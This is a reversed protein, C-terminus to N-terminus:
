RWNDRIYSKRPRESQHSLIVKIEALEVSNKHVENHIKENIEQHKEYLLNHNMLINEANANVKNKISDILEHTHEETQKLQTRLNQTIENVHEKDYYQQFRLDLKNHVDEIRTNIDIIQKDHEEIKSSNTVCNFKSFLSLIKEVIDIM